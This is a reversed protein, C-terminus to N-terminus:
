FIIELLSFWIFEQKYNFSQFDPIFVFFAITAALVYKKNYDKSFTNFFFISIFLQIIVSLIRFCLLIGETGGTLMKFIKIIPATFVASMQLYFWCEKFFINGEEIMDGVAISHVEDSHMGLTTRWLSFALLLLLSIYIWKKNM